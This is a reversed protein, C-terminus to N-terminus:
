FFCAPFKSASCPLDYEVRTFVSQPFWSRILRGFSGSGVLALQDWLRQLEDEMVAEEGIVRNPQWSSNEVM